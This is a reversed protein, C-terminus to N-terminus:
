NLMLGIIIGLFGAILAAIIYTMSQKALALLPNEEEEEEDGEMTGMVTYFIGFVVSLSFIIILVIGLASGLYTSMRSPGTSAAVEHSARLAARKAMVDTLVEGSKIDVQLKGDQIDSDPDIPVCQYASVDDQRLGTQISPYMQSFSAHNLIQNTSM